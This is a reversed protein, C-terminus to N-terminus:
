SHPMTCVGCLRWWAVERFSARGGVWRCLFCIQRARARGMEATLLCPTTSRGAARVSERGFQLRLFLSKPITAYNAPLSERSMEFSCAYGMLWGSSDRFLSKPITAHIAPLSERSMDLARM